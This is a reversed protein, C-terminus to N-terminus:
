ASARRRHEHLRWVIVGLPFAILHAIAASLERTEEASGSLHTLVIAALVALTGAFGALRLLRSVDLSALALGLCGFYGASPGIDRAAVLATGLLSGSLHLPLAVLLSEIVITALHAGWFALVATSTGTRWEAIGVVVAVIGLALIFHGAGDTVFASTLARWAELEWLDRPAFGILDITRATVTGFGTDTLWAAVSLGAMMLLTFRLRVVVARIHPLVPRRRKVRPSTDDSM